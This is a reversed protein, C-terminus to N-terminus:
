WYKKKQRQFHSANATKSEIMRLFENETLTKRNIQSDCGCSLLHGQSCAKAISHAIGAATIANVFASEKYGSFLCSFFRLSCFYHMFCFNYTHWQM